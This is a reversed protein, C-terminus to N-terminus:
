KKSSWLLKFPLRWNRRALTHSFVNFQEKELRSLYMESPVGYLFVPRALALLARRQQGQDNNIVGAAAATEIDRIHAQATSLHNNAVTAVDFVADQLSKQITADNRFVREASLSYKSMIESPLSLKKHQLNSPIGRLCTSIGVAKGFHSAIHDMYTDRIGLSELQLYLISSQTNEAYTELDTITNFQSTTLDTERASLIRKFWSHSLAQTELASALSLTVPHEPPRGEFTQAIADRWFQIRMRGITVDKVHDRILATEVNFARIAWTARWASTPVFLSVMFGEWDATRALQQCHKVAEM